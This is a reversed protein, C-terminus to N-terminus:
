VAHDNELPVGHLLLSKLNKQLTGLMEQLLYPRVEQYAIILQHVSGSTKENLIDNRVKSPNCRYHRDGILTINSVNDQSERLMVPDGNFYFQDLIVEGSPDTKSM